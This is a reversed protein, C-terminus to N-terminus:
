RRGATIMPWDDTRFPSAPLGARNYLVIPPNDAWAYRVAVPSKVRPSRVVVDRGDVIADAWHWAQDAGAIAFAGRADGRIELGDAHTFRLRVADGEVRHSELVPGSHEIDKHYTRKLAVYALRRGVDQKNAPHIDLADGIDATVALGTDPVQNCTLLQAERLEAWASECPEPARTRFNALQVIYFPFDYGWRRRWSTILAPLLSRYQEARDANSEGQYWIAGAIPVGALPHIMSNYLASAACHHDPLLPPIPAPPTERHPVSFEIQYKWDGALSIPQASRDAPELCMQDVTGRFGGAFSQDFVRVALVQRGGRVLRGPITYVRPTNWAGPTEPGTAGIQRGDFYTIDFDDIAGLNLTLDKGAWAAPIDVARRFWVAGDILMGLTDWPRPLDMTPWDADDFDAAAWGKEVGKNGPDKLLAVAEWAALEKEYQRRLNAEDDAAALVRDVTPKLVPDAVLTDRDTWAEAPTGGWSSHILGIPVDLTRFLERAFYYGVATFDGVTKPSCVTWQASFDDKPTASAVRPVLLHRIRPYNAAASEAVADAAAKVTWEMNSQGSCLWVDGMLINTYCLDATDGKVLLELPGGPQMAPLTIHWRGRADAAGEGRGDGLTVVVKEGPRAWGWVPIPKGRQLIMDNGFVAHLRLQNM